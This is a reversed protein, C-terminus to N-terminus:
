IRAEQLGTALYIRYQFSLIEGDFKVDYVEHLREDYKLVSWEKTKNNFYFTHESCSIRITNGFDEIEMVPETKPSLNDKTTYIIYGEEKIM